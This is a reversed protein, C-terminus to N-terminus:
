NHVERVTETWTLGEAVLRSLMPKYIDRSMPLVMGTTQIEEEIKLYFIM